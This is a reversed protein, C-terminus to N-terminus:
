SAQYLKLWAACSTCNFRRAGRRRVLDRLCAERYGHGCPEVGSMDLLNHQELCINCQKYLAAPHETHHELRPEPARGYGQELTPGGSRSEPPAKDAKPLSGLALSEPVPAALKPAVENMTHPPATNRIQEPPPAAAGLDSSDTVHSPQATAVDNVWRIMKATWESVEPTPPTVESSPHKNLVRSRSTSRGVIPTPLHDDCYRTNSREDIATHYAPCQYEGSTTAVVAQCRTNSYTSTPDHKACLRQGALLDIMTSLEPCRMGSGQFEFYAQCRNKAYHDHHACYFGQESDQYM